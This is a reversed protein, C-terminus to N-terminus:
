SNYKQNTDASFEDMSLNVIDSNSKIHSSEISMYTFWAPGAHYLRKAKTGWHVLQEKKKFSDQAFRQRDVNMQKEFLRQFGRFCNGSISLRKIPLWRNLPMYVLPFSLHVISFASANLIGSTAVTWITKEVEHLWQHTGIFPCLTAISDM